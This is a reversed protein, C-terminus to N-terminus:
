LVNRHSLHLIGSGFIVSFKKLKVRLQTVLLMSIPSRPTDYSNYHLSSKHFVNFMIKVAKIEASRGGVQNLAWVNYTSRLYSYHASQVSTSRRFIRLNSARESHRSVRVESVSPAGVLFHMFFEEGAWNRDIAMESEISREAVWNWKIPEEISKELEILLCGQVQEIIAIM